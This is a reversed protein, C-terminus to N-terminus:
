AGLKFAPDSYYRMALGNLRVGLRDMASSLEVAGTGEFHDPFNLDAANLGDVAAARELLDVTTIRNKGPWYHEAGVKFSNLRAAYLPKGDHPM